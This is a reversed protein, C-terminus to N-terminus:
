KSVKCSVVGKLSEIIRIFDEIAVYYSDSDITYFSMLVIIVVASAGFLYIFSQPVLGLKPMKKNYEADKELEIIKKEKEKISNELGQINNLLKSVEHLVKQRVRSVDSQYTCHLDYWENPYNTRIINYKDDQLDKLFEDQDTLDSVIKAISSSDM